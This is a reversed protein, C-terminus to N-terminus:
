ERITTYTLYETCDILGIEDGRAVGHQGGVMVYADAMWGIGVWVGAETFELAEIM